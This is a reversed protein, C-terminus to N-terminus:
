FGSHTIRGTWCTSAIEFHHAGETMEVEGLSVWNAPVNKMLVIEDALAVDRPCIRWDANDYRWRFPGHKWMKRVWFQYHDAKKLKSKMFQMHKM